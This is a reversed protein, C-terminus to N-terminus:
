PLNSYWVDGCAEDREISGIFEGVDRIDGVTFPKSLVGNFGSAKYQEISGRTVNGTMAIIPVRCGGSRLARCVQVGDSRKMVIDLLIAKVNSPLPKPLDAGDEFTEYPIGCTKMFRSAVRLNVREDDVIYYVPGSGVPPPPSGPEDVTHPSLLPSTAAPPLMPADAAESPPQSPANQLGTSANVTEPSSKSRAHSYSNSDSGTGNDSHGRGQPGAEVSSLYAAAMVSSCVFSLKLFLRKMPAVQCRRVM